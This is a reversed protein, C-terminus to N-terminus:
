EDKEYAKRAEELVQRELKQGEPGLEKFGASIVVVGKVGVEACERIIGPVFAARTVVVALDVEAPVDKISKYAKIGLVSPRKPNVPFVAGGFPTSILNWLTTRGVSGPAETAGIVAINKPKFFVDLPNAARQYINHATETGLKGPKSSPKM